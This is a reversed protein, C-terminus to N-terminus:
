GKAGARTGGIGKAYALGLAREQEGAGDGAEAEGEFPADALRDLLPGDYGRWAASLDLDAGSFGNWAM